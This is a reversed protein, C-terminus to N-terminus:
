PVAVRCSGFAIRVKEGPQLTRIVSGDWRVEGDLKVEYPNVSGPELGDLLVLAYHPDHMCWTRARHGLIEVEAPADTEVWVTAETDGVYRLIPGLVLDPVLALTARPNFNLGSSSVSIFATMQLCARSSTTSWGDSWGALPCSSRSTTRQPMQPESRCARCWQSSAASTM